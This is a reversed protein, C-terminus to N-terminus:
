RTGMTMCPKSTQALTTQSILGLVRKRSALGMSMGYMALLKGKSAVADRCQKDEFVVRVEQYIDSRNTPRTREIWKIGADDVEARTMLLAGM